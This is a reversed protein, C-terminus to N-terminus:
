DNAALAAGGGAEREATAPPGAMPPRPTPSRRSCAPSPRCNRCPATGGPAGAGYVANFPVGSRGHGTLHDTIRDFPRTWDGRKLREQGPTSETVGPTNLKCTICCQASVRVLVVKGDAVLRDIADRGLPRGADPRAAAGQQGGGQAALRASPM